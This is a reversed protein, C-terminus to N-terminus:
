KGSRIYYGTRKAWELAIAKADSMNRPMPEYCIYPRGSSLGYRHTTHGDTKQGSRYSPQSLIYIHIIGNGQLAFKFKFSM